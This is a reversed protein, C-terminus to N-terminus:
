VLEASNLKGMSALSNQRSLAETSKQVKTGEKQVIHFGQTPPNVMGLIVGTLEMAAFLPQLLLQLGFLVLLRASGDKPKFTFAFGLIYGWTSMGSILGICARFWYPVSSAVCMCLTMALWILPTAAWTAMFFLLVARNLFPIRRSLVILWLGAFWRCRQHMFDHCSFPSQEYMFSDIWSFKIGKVQAVLAFYADETISGEMGHDFTVLREVANQSVVFSGHMGILPEHLEFQIRFKGFDDGVRVSDALTTLWNDPDQTGYLIVGQGINGYTKEGRSIAEDEGVCHALVGRVTEADFRTESLLSPLSPPLPPFSHTTSLSFFLLSAVRLWVCVFLPLSPPLSPPLAFAVFFMGEDLHVIWDGPEAASAEIAYQLARAKFKAGGVPAFKAPLLLETAMGPCFTELDLPADTAVELCYQSFPLVARLVNSAHVVHSRVLNPHKGRTVIRFFVKHKFSKKLAELTPTRKRLVPPFIIHGIMSFTLSPLSLLACYKWFNVFANAYPMDYVSAFGKWNFQLALTMYFFITLFMAGYYCVLRFGTAFLNDAWFWGQIPYEAGHGAFSSHEDVPSTSRTPSSSTSSGGSATSAPSSPAHIYHQLLQHARSASAVASAEEAALVYPLVHQLYVLHYTKHLFFSAVLLTVWFAIWFVGATDSQVVYKAVGVFFGQFLYVTLAVPGLSETLPKLRLVSGLLADKGLAALLLIVGTFGLFLGDYCWLLMRGEFVDTSLFFFLLGATAATGLFSQSLGAVVERDLKLYYLGLAVGFVFSALHTLPFTSGLTFLQPAAGIEMDFGVFTLPVLATSAWATAMLSMLTGRTAPLALRLLAPFFSLYFLLAAILWTPDRSMLDPSNPMWADVCSAALFFQALSGTGSM